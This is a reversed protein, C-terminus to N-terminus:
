RKRPRPQALYRSWRAEAGPQDVEAAWYEGFAKRVAAGRQELYSRATEKESETGSLEGLMRILMACDNFEGLHTQAGRLLQLRRELGPGYLPRFIELTYRLRKGQIRFQHLDEPAPHESTLRRGAKFYAAVLPVLVRRANDAPTAGRKWKREGAM